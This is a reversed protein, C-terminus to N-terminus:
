RHLLQARAILERLQNQWELLDLTVPNDPSLKESTSIFSDFAILMQLMEPSVAILRANANADFRSNDSLTAIPGWQDCGPGQITKGLVHWPGPTHRSM